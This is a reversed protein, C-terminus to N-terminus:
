APAFAPSDLRPLKLNSKQKVLNEVSNAVSENLSKRTLGLGRKAALALIVAPLAYSLQSLALQKGKSKLAEPDNTEFGATTAAGRTNAKAEEYLYPAYAGLGLLAALGAIRKGRPGANEVAHGAEFGPGFFLGRIFRMRASSPSLGGKRSLYGVLAGVPIGGALLEMALGGPLMTGVIKGPKEGLSEIHSMEHSLIASNDPDDVNTYVEMGMPDATSAWVYPMDRYTVNRDTLNYVKELDSIEPAMTYPQPAELGAGGSVLDDKAQAPSLKKLERYNEVKRDITAQLREMDTHDKPAGHRQDRIIEKAATKECINKVLAQKILM